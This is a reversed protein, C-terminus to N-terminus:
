GLGGKSASGSSTYRCLPEFLPRDSLTAKTTQLRSVLLLSTISLKFFVCFSMSAGGSLSLDEGATDRYITSNM